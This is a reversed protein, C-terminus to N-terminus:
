RTASTTVEDRAGLAPSGIKRQFEREWGILSAIAEM